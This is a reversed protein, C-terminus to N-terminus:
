VREDVKVPEAQPSVAVDDDEYSARRPLSINQLDGDNAKKWKGTEKLEWSGAQEHGNNTVTAGAGGNRLTLDQDSALREGGRFGGLQSRRKTKTRYFRIGGVLIVAGLVLGALFLAIIAGIVGAVAPRMSDKVKEPLSDSGDDTSNNSTDNVFSACFVSTSNCVTCWDGVSALMINEMNQVFDQFSMDTQSPGHGFLPYSILESSPDTSNRFLFRVNLDKLDPYPASSSEGVGFLEFVMSSGYVPLGYFNANINPLNALAAFATMPEFSGFLLNIKGQIGESQINTFLLRLIEAVLTQGSITSFTRSGVGEAASNETVNGNIAYVWQDALIRARTLDDTSLNVTTNHTYVYNLYDFIAYANEYGIFAEPLEQAPILAELSAYFSQTAAQTQQFEPTGFYASAANDYAPCNIEGAIYISNLDLEGVTYIQSYQYGGLPAEINSGNAPISNNGTNNSSISLPPYLGQLFAQASTAIHEDVTSMTFVQTSDVEYKSIDNIALSAAGDQDLPAVYRNRFYSGASYLQQAGVPTLVSEQPVIIPTRDGYRTFIVSSWIIEGNVQAWAMRTLLFGTAIAIFSSM